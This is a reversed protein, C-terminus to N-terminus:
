ESLLGGPTYTNAADWLMWGTYGNDYTAQIQARVMEATYTAGLNFDQLWPRLTARDTKPNYSPTTSARLADFRAIKVNATELSYDIVEYPKAAPNEIGIFGSPYHSPYVMPAIYDFYPLARELTQGINLDNANTTVMGFLDASLVVDTDEFEKHIFKFFSEIVRAKGNVPDSLLTEESLPYMIDHMDGDSPFRIYDYNIEDFGANYAEHGIRAAYEWVKKSGADMWSIGKRDKWIEGNERHVAEEPWVTVLHPDQFVAIRGIVYIGKKHLEGIFERL